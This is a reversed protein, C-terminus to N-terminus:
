FYSVPTAVFFHRMSRVHHVPRIRSRTPKIYLLPLPIPLPVPLDDDSTDNGTKVDENDIDPQFQAPQPLLTASMRALVRQETVTPVLTPARQQARTRV